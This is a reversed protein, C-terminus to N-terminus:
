DEYKMALEDYCESCLFAKIIPTRKTMKLYGGYKTREHKGCRDCLRKEIM